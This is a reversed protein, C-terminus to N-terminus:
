TLERPRIGYRNVDGRRESGDDFRLLMAEAAVGELTFGLARAVANSGPNEAAAILEVYALSLEEFAWRLLRRTSRVAIGQRREEPAVWYGVQGSLDRRDIGLGAAALVADDHRVVVLHAGRGSALSEAALRVFARADEERYPSPVRTWRQVEADQCVATIRPIDRELPSRLRLEGDRLDPVEIATVAPESASSARARRYRARHEGDDARSLKADVSGNCSRQVTATAGLAVPAVLAVLM